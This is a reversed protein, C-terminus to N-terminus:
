LGFRSKLANYNQLIEANSLGRKYVLATNIDGFWSGNGGLFENTVSKYQVVSPIGAGASPGTFTGVSVGNVYFIVTNANQTFSFIYWQNTVLQVVDSLWWQDATSFHLQYGSGNQRIYFNFNRSVGSNFENGFLLRYLNTGFSADMTAAVMVTKGTFPTNFKSSVFSVNSSTGDFTFKKPSTSTNAITNTGITGNNSNTSLDYWINGNGPYSAPNEADLNLLLDTTVIAPGQFVAAAPAVYNNNGGFLTRQANSNFASLLFLLTLVNKM